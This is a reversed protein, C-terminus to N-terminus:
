RAPAVVVPKRTIESSYSLYWILAGSGIVGFLIILTMLFGLCSKM